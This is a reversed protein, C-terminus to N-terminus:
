LVRAYFLFTLFKSVCRRAMIMWIYKNEQVCKSEILLYSNNTKVNPVCGVCVVIGLCKARSTCLECCHWFWSADFLSFHEVESASKVNEWSDHHVFLIYIKITRSKVTNKIITRRGYDFSVLVISNYRVAFPKWDFSPSGLGWASRMFIGRTTNNSIKFLTNNYYLIPM